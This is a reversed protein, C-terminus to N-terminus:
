RKYKLSKKQKLADDVDKRYFFIRRGIKFSKLIGKKSWEDVTVLHIGFEDAVNQRTMKQKPDPSSELMEIKKDLLEELYNYLEMKTVNEIQLIKVSM